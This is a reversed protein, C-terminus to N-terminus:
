FGPAFPACDGLQSCVLGPCCNGHGVCPQYLGQCAQPPYYVETMALLADEIEAVALGADAISARGDLWLGEATLTEM